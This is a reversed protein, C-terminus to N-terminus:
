GQLATVTDAPLADLMARRINVRDTDSLLCLTPKRGQAELPRQSAPLSFESQHNHTVASHEPWTGQQIAAASSLSLTASSSLKYAPCAGHHKARPLEQCHM